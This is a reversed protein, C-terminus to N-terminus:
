LTVRAGGIHLGIWVAFLGTAFAAVGVAGIFRRPTLAHEM